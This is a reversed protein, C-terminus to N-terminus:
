KHLKEKKEQRMGNAVIETHHQYATTLASMRVKDQYKKSLKSNRVMLYSTLLIHIKPYTNEILILFNGEIESKSLTKTMFLHQSKDLEKEANILIIMHKGKNWNIHHIVNKELQNEISQMSLILEEQNHKKYM